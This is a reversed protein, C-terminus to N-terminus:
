TNSATYSPNSTPSRLQDLGWGYLVQLLLQDPMSWGPPCFIQLFEEMAAYIILPDPTSPESCIVSALNELTLPTSKHVASNRLENINELRQCRVDDSDLGQQQQWGYRLDAFSAKYSKVGWKQKGQPPVVYGQQIWDELKYRWFLLRELTQAFQMFAATYNQQQLEMRILFCFEWIGLFQSTPTENGGPPLMAQIQARWHQRTQKSVQKKTYPRDIWNRLCKLADELQWNTTLALCAALEYLSEYRDRHAQLWVKAETFDGRKWASIIREREVPWFYEGMSITNFEISSRAQSHADSVEEFLPVPEIPVLQEVPCQRMLAAVCIELTNAIQPASGKTQIQLTFPTDTSQPLRDLAYQVIFSEVERRMSDVKNVAVTPNWVDVQIESESYLQRIKGAMLKALWLTDRRRFNWPVDEPQDTGWLIVHSLGNQIQEALIVGDLLLEVPSFDETAACQQYAIEGLHRADLRWEPKTADGHYGREEGFEAYLQDLHPLHDGDAGFSRVIGDKCCWGIQRTGVTIILTKM